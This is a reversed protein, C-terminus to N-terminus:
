YCGILLETLLLSCKVTLEFTASDPSLTFSTTFGQEGAAM